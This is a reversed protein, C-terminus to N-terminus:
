KNNLRELESKTISVESFLSGSNGIDKKYNILKFSEGFKFDEFHKVTPDIWLEPADYEKRNNFIEALEIHRDYLHVDGLQFTLNGFPRGVIHSILRHLLAYQSVNFPLGLFSDSSRVRVILDVKNEIVIWQTEYVCPQLSMESLDDIKWLTTLIQRSYPNDILQQIVYEVQNLAIYNKDNKMFGRKNVIDQYKIKDKAEESITEELINYYNNALQWGYAKGITGDPLEWEDWVPSGMDRLEQVINSKKQWIWLIEQSLSKFPVFKKTLIPFGDEPKIKIEHGFISKYYAPSGDKWFMRTEPRLEGQNIIKSYVETFKKDINSM